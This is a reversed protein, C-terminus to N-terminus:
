LPIGGDDEGGGPDGGGRAGPPAGPAPGQQQPDATGAAGDQAGANAAGANADGLGSVNGDDPLADALPVLVCRAKVGGFSTLRVGDEATWLAGSLRRAAQVHARTAGSKVGWHTGRLLDEIGRHANAIALYHGMVGGPPQHWVVRLGFTGIVTDATAADQGARRGAARHIWEALTTRTGNRYPDVVSSLVHQLFMREDSEEDVRMEAAKLKSVWAEASDSEFEGDHLLVDACALLTGFLDCGRADHGVQALAHRYAELVRNFRPWADVLRRRLGAGVQRWTRPDLDPVEAGPDLRELELIAMRSRDQAQLPPVVISSFMFCSRASFGTAQHDAGGRFVMGGSAAQRALKVVKDAKRNDQEAELEDLVVPLSAHGLVQRLAAETADSSALLAEDLLARLLDHFTSKGTGRGGTVWALPRWKLAGGVMGAGIWGLALVADIEGRRWNWTRLVRLVRAAPGDEGGPQHGPHPRPGVPAAPYVYRGVKGPREAVRRSWGGDVPVTVIEDGCHLVLEGDPGRWAGAGRVREAAHWVGEYAAARMLAESAKDQRWGIVHGDKDTRPWLDYLAANATGFLATIGLKSHDKAKLDRLQRQQDLYFFTDGAIGLPEVPCGRPLLVGGGRVGPGGGGPGYDGPEPDPPEDPGPEPACEPGAVPVFEEADDEVAGRVLELNYVTAGGPQPGHPTDDDAM